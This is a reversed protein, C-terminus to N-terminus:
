DRASISFVEYGAGNLVRVSEIEGDRSQPRRALSFVKLAREKAKELSDTRVMIRRVVGGGAEQSAISEIRYIEVM